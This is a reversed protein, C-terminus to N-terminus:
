FEGSEKLTKSFLDEMKDVAKHWTFKAATEIGKKRLSERLGEERLMRMITKALLQPEKPSVVLSNEENFAYDETGVSTTVVPAGCAMAELPPLPFSEYWSPCVVVDASAYLKALREDSPKFFYKTPIPSKFGLQTNSGYMILEINSISRRVIKLAEFLDLVGKWKLASGFCVIRKKCDTRVIDYPHFIDIDIGPNVVPTEEGFKELMINRLWISNSLKTLPLKYSNEAIRKSSRMTAMSLTEYHQMHYFPLGKNSAKVAYATACLTAVNIDCPPIVKKLLETPVYLLGLKLCAHNLYKNFPITTAKVIRINKASYLPRGGILTTIVVEHGKKALGEAFEFIVRVGGSPGIQWLVYNVKM